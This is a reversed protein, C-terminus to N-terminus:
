QEVLTGLAARLRYQGVIYATKESLLDVRAKQLETESEILDFNDAMGHSFKIEALRMKGRANVIQQRRLEIRQEEKELAALQNKVEAVVTDHRTKQDLQSRRIKLLSQQFATKEETRALDTSSTLGVSWYDGYYLENSDLGELFSNKRYTAVLKLDPLVRKKAVRSKRRAEALDAAAQELELRNALAIEVAKDEEITTPRYTLPLDLRLHTTVPYALLIKLRDLTAQYKEQAVSLQDEVDKLRIKARYTDIPSGLESEEMIRATAVHGQLRKEQGSYLRIMEQQRVIEYGLSVTEVITEVEALYVKRTDSALTYDAAHVPDYNYERGFGRLLPVSLSVGVGSSSGNDKEYAVSPTLALEIGLGTKRSIRGALGSAQATTHESRSLGLNAVPQVKWDFGSRAGQLRYEASRVQLASQLLYRNAELARGLLHDLDLTVTETAPSAAPDALDEAARGPGPSCFLLVGSLLIATIRMTEM